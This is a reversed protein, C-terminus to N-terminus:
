RASSLSLRLVRRGSSLSIPLTTHFDSVNHAANSHDYVGGFFATTADKGVYKVLLHAGGPHEDIFSAVDHIFGSILILPRTASQAQVTLAFLSRTDLSLTLFLMCEEWDVVPLDNSDSPWLLSEQTERLRKLQM